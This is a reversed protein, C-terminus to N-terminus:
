WDSLIQEIIDETIKDITETIAIKREDPNNPDYESYGSLTKQFIKKDNIMDKWEADIKITVRYEDVNEGEDTESYVAPKDEISVITGYLTSHAADIEVLDLIKEKIFGNRVQETVTAGLDFEATRDEFEPIAINKIHPPLNGKFSYFGCSQLLLFVITILTIKKM